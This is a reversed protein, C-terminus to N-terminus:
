ALSRVFAAAREVFAPAVWRPPSRQISIRGGFDGFIAQSEVSLVKLPQGASNTGTASILQARNLMRSGPGGKVLVLRARQEAFAIPDRLHANAAFLTRIEAAPFSTALGAHSIEFYGVIYLAPAPPPKPWGKLGSYFVLLDGPLLRLLGRKPSTPDGYTFTDFEPDVHMTKSLNGARLTEPFYDSFHRGTRGVTNGYTRSDGARTDGTAPIPIVEFSGDAFLPGNIGGSGTDIGVRLLVVNM